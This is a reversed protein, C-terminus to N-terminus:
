DGGASFDQVDVGFLELLLADLYFKAAWNIYSLPFYGKWIPESGGIGGNSETFPSETDQIAALGELLARGM